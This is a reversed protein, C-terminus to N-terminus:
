VHEKPFPRHRVYQEFLSVLIMEIKQQEVTFIDIDTLKSDQLGAFTTAIAGSEKFLFVARMGVAASEHLLSVRARRTTTTDHDEVELLFGGEAIQNNVASAAGRVKDVFEPWITKADQRRRLELDAAAKEDARRQAFESDKTRNNELAKQLRERMRDDM